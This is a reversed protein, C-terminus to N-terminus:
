VATAKSFYKLSVFGIVHSERVTDHRRRERPVVGRERWLM